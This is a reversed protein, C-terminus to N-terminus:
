RDCQILIKKPIWYTLAFVVIVSFLTVVSLM